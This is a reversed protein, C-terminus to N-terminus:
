KFHSPETNVIAPAILIVPPLPAVVVYASEEAALAASEADNDPEDAKFAAAIVDAVEEIQKILVDNALLQQKVEISAGIISKVKSM